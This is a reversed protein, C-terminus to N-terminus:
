SKGFLRQGLWTSHINQLRQALDSKERNILELTCEVERLQKRLSHCQFDLDRCKENEQIARVEVDDIRGQLQQAHAQSARVKEEWERARAEWDQAQREVQSNREEALRAREEWQRARTDWESAQVDNKDQLKHSEDAYLQAVELLAAELQQIAGLFSPPLAQKPGAGKEARVFSYLKEFTWEERPAAYVSLAIERYPQPMSSLGFGPVRFPSPGAVKGTVLENLFILFSLMVDHPWVCDSQEPSISGYDILCAKGKPPIIVNWVRLDNHYLGERELYVLQELVELLIKRANYKRGSRIFDILLDGRILERVIFVLGDSEGSMVLKPMKFGPVPKQLFAAESVLEDRNLGGLKPHTTTFLKAITKDGIYYRRTGDFVGEALAHPSIKFETYADIVGSLFWYKNSAFFLPRSLTSLHTPFEGIKLIFNYASLLSTPDTPQVQAWIPPESHLALEYLGLPVLKAITVILDQVFKLGHGHVIHHFVSLGLVIDYQNLKLNRVVDIVDGLCFQVKLNPQEAALLTCVRINEPLNDVGDVDAGIEALGISFYGQACGLDLIRPRRGLKIHLARVIKGIESLRDECARSAASSFESHGYIVQYIEPLAQVAQELESTPSQIIQIM